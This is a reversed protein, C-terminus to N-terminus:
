HAGEKELIKETIYNLDTVLVNDNGLLLYNEMTSIDIGLTELKDKSIILNKGDKTLRGYDLLRLM